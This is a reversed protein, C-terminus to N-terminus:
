PISSAQDARRPARSRCRRQVERPSAREYKVFNRHFDRYNQYGVLFAIESLQRDSEILLRRAQELRVGQLYSTLTVGTELRFRRSLYSPSVHLEAAIVSLSLRRHYDSAILARARAVISAEGIPASAHANLLRDLAYYWRIRLAQPARVDRFLDILHMRQQLLAATRRSRRALEVNVRELLALMLAIAVSRDTDDTALDLDAVLQRLDARFGTLDGQSLRDFACEERLTDYALRVYLSQAHRL